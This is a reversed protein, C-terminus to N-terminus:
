SRKSFNNLVKLVKFFIIYYLSKLKKDSDDTNKESIFRPTNSCNIKLSMQNNLM